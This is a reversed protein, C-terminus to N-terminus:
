GLGSDAADGRHRHAAGSGGRCVVPPVWPLYQHGGGAELWSITLELWFPLVHSFLPCCKIWEEQLFTSASPPSVLTCFWTMLQEGARGM